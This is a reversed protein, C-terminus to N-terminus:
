LVQYCSSKGCFKSLYLKDQGRYQIQSGANLCSGVEMRFKINTMNIVEQSQQWTSSM